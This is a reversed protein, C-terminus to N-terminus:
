QMTILLGSSELEEELESDEIVYRLKRGELIQVFEKQLGAHAIMVRKDFRGERPEEGLLEYLMKAEAATGELFREVQSLENMVLHYYSENVARYLAALEKLKALEAPYGVSLSELRKAVSGSLLLAYVGDPNLSLRRRVSQGSVVINSLWLQYADELVAFSSAAKERSFCLVLPMPYVLASLALRVAERYRANVSQVEGRNMKERPRVLDKPLEHPVPISRIRAKAIPNVGLPGAGRVPDSNYILLEVGRESLEAHAALLVGALKEALRLTLAPMFNIGHTLDLILRHYAREVCLRGLECLAVAEFDAASGEFVWNGGPRGVAPCVIARVNQAHVGDVHKLLCGLYEEIFRQIRGRLESYSGAAGAERILARLQDYCEYCRSRQASDRYEDVLSDLILLAADAGEYAKLLLPLTTCFALEESRDEGELRLEYQV